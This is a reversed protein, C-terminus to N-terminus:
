EPIEKDLVRLLNGVRRSLALLEAGAKGGGIPAYRLADIEKWLHQLEELPAQRLPPRKAKLATEAQKLTLRHPSLRLKDALFGSLAEGLLSAARTLDESHRRAADLRRLASSRARKFRAEEPNLASRWARMGFIGVCLIWLSPGTWPIWRSRSIDVLSGTWAARLTTERISHIDADLATTSPSASPSITLSPAEEAATM